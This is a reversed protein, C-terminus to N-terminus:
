AGVLEISQKIRTWFETDHAEFPAARAYTFAVMLDDDPLQCALQYQHIHAEGQTFSTRTEIAEITATKGIRLTARPGEEFDPATAKLAAIQATFTSELTQGAEIAGRSIVLTSGLDPFKLINISQDTYRVGPLQLSLENTFYSM